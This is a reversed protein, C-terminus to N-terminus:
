QVLRVVGNTSTAKSNVSIGPGNLRIFDAIISGNVTVPAGSNNVIIESKPSYLTGNIVVNGKKVEIKGNKSYIIPSDLM